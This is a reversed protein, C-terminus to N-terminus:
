VTNWSPRSNRAQNYLSYKKKKNEVPMSKYFRSLALYRFADYLDDGTTPDGHKADEKLVDEVDKENHIRDTLNNYLLKCTNFIQIQPFRELKVEGSEDDTVEQYKLLERILAAGQKRANNAPELFVKYDSFEDAINRNMMKKATNFASGRDTWCDHGAYIHTVKKADDFSNFMKAQDEISVQANSWDRYIFITGEEDVAAWVWASPHRWGFDFGAIREWHDPITFPECQHIDKRLDFYTGADIDHDGYRWAKRLEPSAMSLIRAGYGPDARM